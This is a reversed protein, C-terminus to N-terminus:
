MVPPVEIGLQKLAEEMSECAIAVTALLMQKRKENQENMIHHKHYFNNFLQAM